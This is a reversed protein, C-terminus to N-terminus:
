AYNEKQSILKTLEVFLVEVEDQTLIVKGGYDDTLRINGSATMSLEPCCSGSRCLKIPTTINIM